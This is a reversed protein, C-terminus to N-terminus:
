HRAGAAPDVRAWTATLRGAAGAAAPAALGAARYHIDNTPASYCGTAQLDLLWGQEDKDVALGTTAAQRLDAVLLEGDPMVVLEGKDAGAARLVAQRLAVARGMDGLLAARGPSGPSAQECPHAVASAALTQASEDEAMLREFLVEARSLRGPGGNGRGVGELVLAAAVSAVVLVVALLWVFVRGRRPTGVPATVGATPRLGSSSSAAPTLPARASSGPPTPVHRVPSKSAPQAGPGSTHIDARPAAPTTGPRGRAGAGTSGEIPVGSQAGSSPQGKVPLTPPGHRQPRDPGPRRGLPHEPMAWRLAGQKPRPAPPMTPVEESLDDELVGGAPHPLPANPGPRAAGLPVPGAGAPGGARPAPGDPGEDEGNGAETGESV